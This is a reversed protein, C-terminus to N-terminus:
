ILHVFKLLDSEDSQLNHVCGNICVKALRRKLAASMAQRQEDEDSSHSLEENGSDSM